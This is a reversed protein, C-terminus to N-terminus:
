HGHTAKGRSRRLFLPLLAPLLWAPLALTGGGASLACGNNEKKSREVVITFTQEDDGLANTSTVTITGTRGIDSEQPTGSITDIGDFSLWSPLGAVSLSSPLVSSRTITYSYRRGAVAKDPPASTIRPPQAEVGFWVDDRAIPDAGGLVWLRSDFVVSTHGSRPTWQAAATEQTWNVGDDTSWVDNFMETWIRQGGLLWLRDNFVATAYGTRAPWPAAASEQIWNVGDNSSWVESSWAGWTGTGLVWLRNNFVVPAPQSGDPWAATATEQTWNVGDTTSWTDNVNAYPNGGGFIWLRNDFVVATLGSRGEWPAAASEQTWARGDASSWVDNHYVNQFRGPSSVGGLIWIRNNFVVCAHGFRAAWPASATEQKWQIGDDSSWIDNFKASDSGGGLVWIRGNFVVSAPHPRPFWQVAATERRWNVGDSSSQADNGEAGLAWLRNNHVTLVRGLWWPGSTSEQRWNVGDASSWTDRHDDWEAGYEGSVNGHGGVIWIRNKFVASAHASRVPWAASETEQKWNVGDSSSWVDNHHVFDHYWGYMPQSQGGLVWMRNNFVASTHGSREMWPAAYTERTWNVGDATSWVDNFYANSLSGGMVWLRNKYVAVTHGRRGMWPAAATEQTWNTGDATSWVDNHYAMSSTTSSYSIGGLVWMRNNFVAVEHSYRAPWPAADTHSTWNVGDASSWVDNLEGYGGLGGLVWLRGNFVATRHQFRVGWEAGSQWAKEWHAGQAALGTALLVVVAVAITKLYM